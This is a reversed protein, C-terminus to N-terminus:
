ASEVAPAPPPDPAPAPPSRPVCYFTAYLVPVVIITLVTGFAGRAVLQKLKPSERGAPWTVVAADHLKILSQKQLDEVQLFAEIAGGGDSVEPRVVDGLTTGGRTKCRLYCDGPSLGGPWTVVGGPGLAFCVPRPALFLISSLTTRCM